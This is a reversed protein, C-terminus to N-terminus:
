VEALRLREIISRKCLGHYCCVPIIVSLLAIVPVSLALPLIHFSWVFYRMNHGIMYLLGYSLVNGITAAAALTWVGYWIGEMALMKELQKGTMGVAQMMAFEQRRALIGTIMANILNLIGILALILGLLGGVVLFMRNETSFEKRLSEKTSLVLEPHEAEIWANIEESVQEDTGEEIELFAHLGGKAYCVEEFDKESLIMEAAGVITARPGAAYPFDVVAMVEVEQEKGDKKEGLGKLTIKEGISGEVWSSWYNKVLVAYGGSAFKEADFNGELIEIYPFLDNDPSFSVVQVEGSERVNEMIDDMFSRSQAEETEYSAFYKEFLNDSLVAMCGSNKVTFVNEVSPVNELHSFVEPTIAQYDRESASLNVTSFHSVQMDTLLYDRVYQDFSFGKVLAYTGNLLILSLSLSAIVLVTKRKNRGLNAMAMRGMSVRASKKEKKKYQINEVYRVAEIPSVRTALRCPRICSLYVVLLSFLASGVFILPNVSVKKVGGTNLAAYVAPLVGKGVFWGTLLGLPIGAASLLFAQGRVMRRLQRGTTGITKLLGYYRIDATVNIYFINYIILYGSLIIVGLIVAGLFMTMFDMSHAAYGWNVSIDVEDENFGARSTLEEMQNEIDYSSDFMVSAALTGEAHVLRKEDQRKNYNEELLPVNALLWKESIWLEEAHSADNSQWFGSLIFEEQIIKESGDQLHTSIRLPVKEGVKLPVGLAELVKSSAACENMEQPMKGKEPYSYSWKAMKDEAYRVETQITNLEPNVGFGAVIDYSIDQYGGAAKIKEYEEMTLYKYGGHSYTGIQRFTAEQFATILSGGVTFLATFLVSTLAIALVAILNKWKKERITRWTLTRIIKKNAVNKM